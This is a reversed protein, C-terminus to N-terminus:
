EEVIVKAKFITFAEQINRTCKQAMNLETLAMHVNGMQFFLFIAYSHHMTCTLSNPHAKQYDMFVSNM